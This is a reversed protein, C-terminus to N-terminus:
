STMQRELAVAVVEGSATPRGQFLMAGGACVRAREDLPLTLRLVDGVKLNAIAELPLRVKGLEAVIDVAVERMANAIGSNIAEAVTAESTQVASIPLAIFIKGGADLALAAVVAAGPEIEKNTTPKVEVGLKATLVESFAKLIGGSVRSALALQASTLTASGLSSNEGGGGLVGDLMRALAVEDLLVLGRSSSGSGGITFAVAHVITADAALHAFSVCRPEDATIGVRKRALFPVSRRLATALDGTFEAIRACAARGRGGPVSLAEIRNQSM